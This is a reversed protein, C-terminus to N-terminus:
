YLFKYLKERINDIFIINFTLFNLTGINAVTPSLANPLSPTTLLLIDTPDTAIDPAGAAGVKIVSKLIEAFIASIQWDKKASCQEVYSYKWTKRVLHAVAKRAAKRQKTINASHGFNGITYQDLYDKQIMNSVEDHKDKSRQLDLVPKVLPVVYFHKLPTLIATPVDQGREHDFQFDQKKYTPSGQSQTKSIDETLLDTKNAVIVIAFKNCHYKSSHSTISFNRNVQVHNSNANNNQTNVNGLNLINSFKKSSFSLNNDNLNLNSSFLTLANSKANSKYNLCNNNSKPILINYSESCPKALNKIDDINFTAENNIGEINDHLVNISPSYIPSLTNNRPPIENVKDANQQKNRKIRTLKKHSLNTKDNEVQIDKLNLLEFSKKYPKISKSKKGILINNKLHHDNFFWKRSSKLGSSKLSSNSYELAKQHSNIDEPLTFSHSCTTGSSNLINPVLFSSSSVRNIDMGAYKPATHSTKLVDKFCKSNNPKYTLTLNQALNNLERHDGLQNFSKGLNARVRVIKDRVSRIYRFTDLSNIDFVMLYADATLLGYHRYHTWEDLSDSPFNPISPLDNIRLHYARDNVIMTVYYTEKCLTPKYVGTFEGSTFREVLASKGVGPAGLLVIKILNM